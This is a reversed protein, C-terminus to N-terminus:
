WDLSALSPQRYITAFAPTGEGVFAGAVNMEMMEHAEIEDMGDEVLIQVCKGYDYLIVERHVNGAWWGSVVGLIAESFGDALLFGDAPDFSDM